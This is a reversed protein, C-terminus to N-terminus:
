SLINTFLEYQNEYTDKPQTKRVKIVQSICDDDNVDFSVIDLSSILSKKSEFVDWELKKLDAAIDTTDGITKSRGKSKKTFTTKRLALLNMDGKGDYTGPDSDYYLNPFEAESKGELYGEQYLNSLSFIKTIVRHDTMSDFAGCSKNQKEQTYQYGDYENSQTALTISNYDLASNVSFSTQRKEASISKPRKSLPLLYGHTGNKSPSSSCNSTITSTNMDKDKSYEDEDLFSSIPESYFNRSLGGQRLRRIRNLAKQRNYVNRNHSKPTHVNMTEVDTIHNNTSLINSDDNADPVHSSCHCQFCISQGLSHIWQQMDETSTKNPLQCQFCCSNGFTNIWQQFNDRSTYTPIQRQSLISKGPSCNTSCSFIEAVYAILVELLNGTHNTSISMDIYENQSQQEKDNKEQESSYNHFLVPDRKSGYEKVKDTECQSSVLSTQTKIDNYRVRNRILSSSSSPVLSLIDEDADSVDSNDVLSPIDSSNEDQDQSTTKNETIESLAELIDVDFGDSSMSEYSIDNDIDIDILPISERTMTTM